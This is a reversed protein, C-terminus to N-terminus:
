VEAKLLERRVHNTVEVLGDLISLLLNAFQGHVLPFEHLDSTLMSPVVGKLLWVLQLSHFTENKGLWFSRLEQLGVRGGGVFGRM